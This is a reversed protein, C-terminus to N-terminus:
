GDHGSHEGPTHYLTSTDAPSSVLIVSEVSSITHVPCQGIGRAMNCNYCMVRYGSPYGNKKLWRFVVGGGPPLGKTPALEDRHKGGDNNIHDITLFPLRNEDCGPCACKPNPGGYALIADLRSAARYNAM